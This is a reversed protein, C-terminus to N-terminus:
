EPIIIHFRSGIGPTSEVYLTGGHNAAISRCLSLGIGSGPYVENPHLRKFVKFIQESYKVNFGIGNDSVIIDYYTRTKDANEIHRSAQSQDIQQSSISIQPAREPDAFKIANDILNYFLQNMELSVARIVPMRGATVVAGKEEFTLEFDSLVQSLTDDLNVPRFMKGSKFVMSHQRLDAILMSMRQSSEIIKKVAKRDSESLSTNHDLIDAYIHIKRLPEQLDHSAIHAYQLLENNARLLDANLKELEEWSVAAGRETQRIGAKESPTM